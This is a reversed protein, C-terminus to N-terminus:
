RKAEASNAKLPHKLSGASLHTLDEPLGAWGVSCQRVSRWSGTYTLVLHLTSAIEALLILRLM